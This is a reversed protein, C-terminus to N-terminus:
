LNGTNLLRTNWFLSIDKITNDIKIIRCISNLSEVVLKICIIIKYFQVTTSNKFLYPNVCLPISFSTQIRSIYDFKMQDSTFSM